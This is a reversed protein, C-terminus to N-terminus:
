WLVCVIVYSLSLALLKLPGDYAFTGFHKIGLRASLIAIVCQTSLIIIIIRFFFSSIFYLFLLDDM